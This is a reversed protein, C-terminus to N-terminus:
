DDLRGGFLEKVDATFKDSDGPALESGDELKVLIDEGMVESFVRSCLKQNRADLVIPRDSTRLRDFRVTAHGANLELLKGHQELINSLASAKEALDELFRKWAEVKSSRVAGAFQARQRRRPAAAEPAPPAPAPAAAPPAPAFRAPAPAPAPAVPEPQVARPAPAVPTPAPAQARAQTPVLTPTPAPAPAPASSQAPAPSPALVPASSVRSAPAEAGGAALREELRFLREALEAIPVTSAPRALQLMALELILPSQGPLTRMQDRAHLLDEMMLEIRDGGLQKAIQAMSARAEPPAETLPNDMGCHACLMCGRLHILVADLLEREGGKNAALQALLTARDGAVVASVIREITEHDASAELRETDLLTPSDGVLALLQDALSLADRMGGRSRRAIAASVGAEAQVGELAFVEDLRTVIAQESLASLKLVQCRSLITDPLKHPETTAFLFKVHPPPEELTKLLANFAQRSLMHAEDLIYIKHRAVLPAYAAQDRLDRVNDVGTNSAADIEIVDPENGADTAVCRACTGCPDITPGKECNLAKAFLRATTTKGTGRPGCLLYAHAIREEQIAGQLTRTVVEQGTVESFTKPRYKRALVLYSM